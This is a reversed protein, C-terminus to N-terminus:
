VQKDARIVKLSKVGHSIEIESNRIDILIDPHQQLFNFTVPAM